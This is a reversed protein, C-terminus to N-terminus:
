PGKELVLELERTAGEPLTFAPSTKAAYGRARASITMEMDPYVGATRFRGDEQREILCVSTVGTGLVSRGGRWDEKAAYDAWLELEAPKSGDRTSVKVVMTPSVYGVIEIGKVDHDLTGLLVPMQTSLPADKSLRHRSVTHGTPNAFLTANELGHPAFVTTVKEGDSQAYTGWSDGGITGMIQIGVGKMPNGKSDHVLAELAVHPVGRILMPERTAGDKVAWQMPM